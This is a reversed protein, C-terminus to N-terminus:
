GGAGGVSLCAWQFDSIWEKYISFHNTFKIHLKIQMKSYKTNCHTHLVTGLISIRERERKVRNTTCDRYWHAKFMRRGIHIEKVRLGRRKGSERNSNIIIRHSISVYVGIHTVDLCWVSSLLIREAEWESWEVNYFRTVRIVNDSCVLPSCIHIAM